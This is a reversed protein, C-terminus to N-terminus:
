SWGGNVRISEGTIYRAKESLLFMVSHAIDETLGPGQLPIEQVLVEKEEQSLHHNMKTEIYGPAVANVRIGSPGLEKALSKVFLEQSGKVSSYAVECSAGVEGWISTVLILQGNKKHIMYPIVHKSIKWVAHVHLHIMADMQHHSMEQFLGIFSKGNAFIVRDIEKPLQELLTVLGDNNSLDAKLLVISQEGDKNMDLQPKNQFYHLYLNDGEKMLHKTIELGIDGSAGVVLTNRRLTNM